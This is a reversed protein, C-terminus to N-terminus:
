QTRGTVMIAPAISRLRPAPLHIYYGGPLLLRFVGHWEVDVLQREALDLWRARGWKHIHTPDQDLLRVIPGLPGDYVPVVFAFVGGPKLWRCIQHFQNDVDPVHELVDMATLLDYPESPVGEGARGARFTVNRIRRSNEEIVGPDVDLGTVLWDPEADALYGAWKGLGCGVDAVRIRGDGVKARVTEHYHRLKRTPNQAEYDGYYSEFYEADFDPVHSGM